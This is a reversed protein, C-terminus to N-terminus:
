TESLRNKSTERYFSAKLSHATQSSYESQRQHSHNLTPLPVWTHLRLSAGLRGRQPTSDTHARLPGSRQLDRRSPRISRVGPSQYRVFWHLHSRGQVDNKGKSFDLSSGDGERPHSLIITRFLNSNTPLLAPRSGVPLSARVASHTWGSAWTLFAAPAASVCPACDAWACLWRVRWPAAAEPVSGHRGTVAAGALGPIWSLLPFCGKWM